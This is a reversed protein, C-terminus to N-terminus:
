KECRCRCVNEAWCTTRLSGLVSNGRFYSRRVAAVSRSHLDAAVLSGAVSSRVGTRCLERGFSQSVALQSCGEVALSRRHSGAVM